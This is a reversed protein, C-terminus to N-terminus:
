GTTTFLWAVRGELPSRGDYFPWGEARFWPKLCHEPPEDGRYSGYHVQSFFIGRAALRGAVARIAESDSGDPYLQLTRREIVVDFPGQCCKADCLDGAVFRAHGGPRAGRGGLLHSFLEAPPTEHSVAAMAFPSLDLATVDFGASALAWPEMSLGTGVCLVTRFDHSRMVDVLEGDDCFIDVFGVIDKDIQARWYQDWPAPDTMTKPPLWGLEDDIKRGLLRDIIGRM